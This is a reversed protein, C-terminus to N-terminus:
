ECYALKPEFRRYFGCLLYYLFLLFLLLEAEPRFPPESDQIDLGDQLDLGVEIGSKFELSKNFDDSFLSLPELDQQLLLEPHLYLIHYVRRKNKHLIGLTGVIQRISPSIMLVPSASILAVM